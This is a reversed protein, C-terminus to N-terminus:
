CVANKLFSWSLLKETSYHLCFIKRCLVTFELKFQEVTERQQVALKRIGLNNFNNSFNDLFKGNKCWFILKKTSQGAVCFQQAIDMPIWKESSSFNAPLIYSRSLPRLLLSVCHCPRRKIVTHKFISLFHM